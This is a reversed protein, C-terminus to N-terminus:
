EKVRNLIADWERGKPMVFLCKGASRKEWLGGLQRKEINDPLDWDRTNKYEIALVRRDTLMVLFDPYFRDTSTQLSFSTPKREVNRVWYEVRPLETAIFHACEFEEGSSKLNGIQLFFHKPLETFGSYIFDYAYRGSQFVMEADGSSSFDDAVKILSQYVNKMAERKAEQIKHELAERLRFKAYLLEEITFNRQEILSTVAGNLFASKEDPIISEEHINRELWSVLWMQDHDSQYDLLALQHEIQEIHEFRVHEDKLVIRGGQARVSPNSFEAESLEFSHNLLRWEGQLLHTEEFPEFISGQRIALLPVAFTEGRESPTKEPVLHEGRLKALAKRAAEKGEGTQFAGELKTALSPSFDGKLTVTSSEPTVEVQEALKGALAGPSPIEPSEYTVFPAADFLTREDGADVAHLLEKTEQREFGSRVLGDRLSEVTAVFNSSTVFAYAENLQQIGKRKAYPMRLIRGLIQEAATSSTTNRFSCLVYAFPCDWGERLKDVTIIFRVPCEPSLVNGHDFLDDQTGTAIAIENEAIGFDEMLAKKVTEPVLTEHERDKREAQLLMIPRLYERTTGSEENAKQQLMNLCAISDRLTDKWNERRVVELPMKIMDEAHLSAASVSFLVNSPQYKRDPTATLELIASPELRALTDFALPTGQNHAEDVIIFSHRLRLADVLSQNGIKKPDSIGEFHSQMDTNQKYVNLRDTDKQKFSQMTAVIIISSGQLIHPKMRLAEEIGMVEVEGLASFVAQHLLQDPDRLMRLTQERIPESPVLWLTLSHRLFLLSRNAREIALGGILTKGGGTPIRLCVYPTEPLSSLPAYNLKLGKWEETTIEYAEKASKTARCNRFYKELWDLAQSQYNKLIM